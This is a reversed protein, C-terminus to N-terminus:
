PRVVANEPREVIKMLGYENVQNSPRAPGHGQKVECDCDWVSEIEQEQRAKRSKANMNFKTSMRSSEKNPIIVRSADLNPLSWVRIKEIERSASQKGGLKSMMMKDYAQIFILYITNLGFLNSYTSTVVFYIRFIEFLNLLIQYVTERGWVSIFVGTKSTSVNFGIWFFWIVTPCWMHGGSCCCIVIPLRAM